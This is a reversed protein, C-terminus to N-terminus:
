IEDLGLDFVFEDEPIDMDGILDDDFVRVKPAAPKAAIPPARPRITLNPKTTAALPKTTAALPKATTALSKTTAVIPKTTTAIPKTTAALPKRKITAALPKTTAALPRRVAPVKSIERRQTATSSTVPRSVPRNAAPVPTKVGHGRAPNVIKAPEPAKKRFMPEELEEVSCLRIGQEKVSEVELEKITRMQSDEYGLGWLPPLGKIREFIPELNPHEWAPEWPIEQVKPPMYEVEGDSEEEVEAVEDLGVGQVVEHISDLSLDEDWKGSPAPTVFSKDPEQAAKLPTLSQRSSRRRHRTASPLPTATASEPILPGPAPTRLTHKVTTSPPQRRTPAPTRHTNPIHALQSLSKSPPISKSTSAFLRKPEIEDEDRGKGKGRGDLHPADVNRDREVTKVGLGIRTATSPVLKGPARSPTKSPLAGANEKNLNKRGTTQAHSYTRPLHTSAPAFM